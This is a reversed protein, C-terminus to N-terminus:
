KAPKFRNILAVIRATEDDSLAPNCPISLEERHIRETIPLSSSSLSSLPTNKYCQQEHPAIPYHIETEVGNDALYQRLEDAAREYPKNITKLDLYKIM